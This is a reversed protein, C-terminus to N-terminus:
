SRAWRKQLYILILSAVALSAGVAALVGLMQQVWHSHAAYPRVAQVAQDVMPPGAAVAGAISTLLMASRAPPVPDAPTPPTKEARTFSSPLTEASSGPEGESWLRVEDARRAVLGQVKRGGANVFKAMELPVQDFQRANLRKWITWRREAGLNFVFSLLAAYQNDTLEDIVERRVIAHLRAAATKLDDGLLERARAEDIRQGGHVNGTHGYGITWVGVLDQYADLRCGEHAATLEVARPPIPRM